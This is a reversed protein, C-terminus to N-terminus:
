ACVTEYRHPSGAVVMAKQYEGRMSELKEAGKALPVCSLRFKGKHYGGYRGDRRDIAEFLGTVSVRDWPEGNSVNHNIFQALLPISQCLLVLDKQRSEALYCVDKKTAFDRHIRALRQGELDITLM